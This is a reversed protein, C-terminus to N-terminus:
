ALHDEIFPIENETIFYEYLRADLDSKVRDILQIDKDPMLVRYKANISRMVDSRKRKQMDGSKNAVGLVRNVEETATRSQKLNINDILLKLLAKEVEEFVEKVPYPSRVHMSGTTAIPQEQLVVVPKRKKYFWFAALGMFAIVSASIISKSTVSPNATEYVQEGTFTFHQPSVKVSDIDWKGFVTYYYHGNAYWGINRTRPSSFFNWVMKDSLTYIKNSLLNLYQIHDRQSVLLGSDLVTIVPNDITSFVALRSNLKGLVKWDAKELDLSIVTDVTIVRENEPVKETQRGVIYGLSILQNGNPSKWQLQGPPDLAIPIERNLREIKWDSSQEDFVRLQGNWRWFGYGGLNYFKDKFVFAKCNINYGYHETKDVRQFLLSDNNIPDASKYLMGTANIFIYLEGKRVMLVQGYTSFNSPKFDILRFALSYSTFFECGEFRPERITRLFNNNPVTYFKEQSRAEVFFMLLLFCLQSTRKM